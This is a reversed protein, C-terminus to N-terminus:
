KDELAAKYWNINKARRKLDYEWKPVDKGESLEGMFQRMEDLEMSREKSTRNLIDLYDDYRNQIEPNNSSSFDSFPGPSFEDGIGILPSNKYHIMESHVVHLAYNLALFKNSLDDTKLSNQLFNWAEHMFSVREKPSEIEYNAEPSGSLVKNETFVLGHFALWSDIANIAIHIMKDALKHAKQKIKSYYVEYISSLSGQRKRKADLESLIYEYKYIKKVDEKDFVAWSRRDTPM